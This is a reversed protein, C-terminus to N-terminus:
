AGVMLKRRISARVSLEPSFLRVVAAMEPLEAKKPVKVAGLLTTRMLVAVMVRTVARVRWAPSSKRTLEAIAASPKRYQPM